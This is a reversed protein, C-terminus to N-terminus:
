PVRVAMATGTPNSTDRAGLVEFSATTAEDISVTYRSGFQVINGCIFITNPLRARIHTAGDSDVGTVIYPWWRRFGAPTMTIAQNSAYANAIPIMVRDGTLGTAYAGTNFNFNICSRNTGTIVDAASRIGNLWAWGNHANEPEPSLVLIAAQLFEQTAPTINMIYVYSTGYFYRVQVTGSIQMRVQPTTRALSDTLTVGLNTALVRTFNLQIYRGVADTPCRFSNAVPETWGIALLIVRLDDIISQVDAVSVNAFYRPTQNFIPSAM